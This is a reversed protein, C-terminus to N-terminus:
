WQEKVHERKVLEEPLLLGISVQGRFAGETILEGSCFHHFIVENKTPSIDIRINSPIFDTDFKHIQCTVNYPRFCSSGYMDKYDSKTFLVGREALGGPWCPCIKQFEIPVAAKISM